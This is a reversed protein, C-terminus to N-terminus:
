ECHERLCRSAHYPVIDIHEGAQLRQKTRQWFDVDLLDAHHRMFTVRQDGSLGIFHEFEEPFVDHVEVSFWPEASMEEAHTRPEPITRFRCDTLLCLEDYDYFVVRGHRTVGYNKLMMDGPFINSAALDKTANGYDILAALAAM